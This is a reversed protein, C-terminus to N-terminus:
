FIWDFIKNLIGTKQRRAIPGRGEYRLQANSIKTSPITNDRTVDRGRIVGSLVMIQTEKNVVVSKRAEIVLNGNPLVEVVEATITMRLNGTSRTTGEGTYKDSSQIGFEELFKGIIGKGTGSDMEETQTIETTSRQTASVVENVVITVVDGVYRAKNDQFLYGRNEDWLSTAGASLATSLMCVIIGIAAGSLKM